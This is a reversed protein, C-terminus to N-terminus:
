KLGVGVPVGPRPGLDLVAVLLDRRRRLREAVRDATRDALGARVVLQDEEVAVFIARDRLVGVVAVRDAQPQRGGFLTLADEGIREVVVAIRDRLQQIRDGTLGIRV